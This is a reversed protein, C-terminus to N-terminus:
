GILRNSNSFIARAHSVSITAQKQSKKSNRCFINRLCLLVFNAFKKFFIFNLTKPIKRLKERFEDKLLRTHCALSLFRVNHM